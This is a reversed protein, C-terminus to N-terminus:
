SGGIEIGILFLGAKDALARLRPRELLLTGGAEVAVGQLRAAMAGELTRPGITPLDVRRDQGPKALKVLVGGPGHRRLDRCRALLQDTGEIAEVGLVIGEQVVVAQGVDVAGLARAVEVGRAIDREAQANPRHAGFVGPPATLEALLDDIGVVRFGEAELLEVIGRLLGDDGLAKAGAKALFAMARRDPRPESLSPRRIPGILVLEQCGEAKLRDLATATAGLRTWAHAAGAVTAPDTQGEFALVFFERGAGRMVEILRGPLPGGGALIGLKPAGSAPAAM